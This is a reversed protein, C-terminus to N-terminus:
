DGVFWETPLQRGAGIALARELVTEGLAAFQLGAGDGYFLTVDDPSARGPASGLMVRELEHVREWHKFYSYEGEFHRSAGGMQYERVQGRTTTFLASRSVIAEDLQGASLTNVHTGPRVRNGDFVPKRSSTAATIIDAVDLVDQASEVADIPFDFRAKMREVFAQRPEPTRSYVVARELKRVCALAEMQAAAQRGAGLVGLVRADPRALYKVGLASTAGVRLLQIHSGALIAKLEGTDLDFLFVQDVRTGHPMPVLRTGSDTFDQVSSIVRLASVRRSRIAGRLEFMQYRRREVATPVTLLSWPVNLADGEAFGRYADDLISIADEIGILPQIESNRLLTTV